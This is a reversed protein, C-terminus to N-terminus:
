HFALVALLRFFFLMYATWILLISVTPYNHCSARLSYYTEISTNFPYLIMAVQLLWEESLISFPQMPSKHLVTSSFCCDDQTYLCNGFWVKSVLVRYSLHFCLLLSLHGRCFNHMITFNCAEVLWHVYHAISIVHVFIHLYM